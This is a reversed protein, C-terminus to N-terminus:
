QFTHAGGAHPLQISDIMGNQLTFTVNSGVHLGLTNPPEGRYGEIKDFTFPYQQNSQEPQIFGLGFDELRVVNGEM